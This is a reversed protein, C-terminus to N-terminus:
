ECWFWFFSFDLGGYLGSCVNDLVCVAMKVAGWLILRPAPCVPITKRLRTCICSWMTLMKALGVLPMRGMVVYGDCILKWVHLITFVQIQIHPQGATPTKEKCDLNDLLIQNLNSNIHTFSVYKSAPVQWLCVLLASWDCAIHFTENCALFVYHPIHSPKQWFHVCSCSSLKMLCCRLSIVNEFRNCQCPVRTVSNITSLLVM